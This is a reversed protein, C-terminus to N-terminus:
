GGGTWFYAGFGGRVVAVDHMCDVRLEWNPDDECDLEGATPTMGPPALVPQMIGPPSLPPEPGRPPDAAAVAATALMPLLTLKVATSRRVDKAHLPPSAGSILIV